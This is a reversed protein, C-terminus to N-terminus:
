VKMMKNGELCKNKIKVCIVLMCSCIEVEQKRSYNAKSEKLVWNCNWVIVSHKGACGQEIENNSTTKEGHRCNSHNNHDQATSSPFGCRWWVPTFLSVLLSGLVDFRRIEPNVVILHFELCQLFTMRIIITGAATSGQRKGPANSIVVVICMIVMM